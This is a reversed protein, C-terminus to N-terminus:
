TLVSHLIDPYGRMFQNSDMSNRGELQVRKIILVNIGTQITMRNQDCFVQGPRYANIIHHDPEVELIKLIKGNWTTWAGPWPTMARVFRELQIASDNWNIKGDEKTLTKVYDAEADNQPKPNIEGNIYKKITPALLEAGLPALKEALSIPTENKSLEVSAQALIPGTDLNKDMLMITVGSEKDGNLIPAQLVAAGRYKPLLSAHINVCGYKPINLITEPIIQAYAIVVILDPHLAKIDDAITIIKDPQLVPINNIEAEVKIPTPTLVKKRGITKDPQSIVAVVEFAPDKVIAKLTPVSFFPTGIFITKTKEM